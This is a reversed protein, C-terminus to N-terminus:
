YPVWHKGSCLFLHKGDELCQARVERESELSPNLPASNWFSFCLTQIRFLEWAPQKLHWLRTATLRSWVVLFIFSPSHPLVHCMRQTCTAWVERPWTQKHTLTSFHDGSCMNLDGGSFSLPHFLASLLCVPFGGKFSLNSQLCLLEVSIKLDPLNLIVEPATSHFLM